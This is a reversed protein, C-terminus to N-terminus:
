RELFENILLIKLKIFREENISKLKIKEFIKKLQIENEKSVFPFNSIYEELLYIDQEIKMRDKTETILRLDKEFDEKIMKLTEINDM